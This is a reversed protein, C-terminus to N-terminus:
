LIIKQPMEGIKSLLDKLQSENAPKREKSSVFVTDAQELLQKKRGHTKNQRIDLQEVLNQLRRTM